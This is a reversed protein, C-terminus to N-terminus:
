EPAVKAIDPVITCPAGGEKVTLRDCVMMDIMGTVTDIRLASHATGLPGLDTTIVDTIQYRGVESTAGVSKGAFIASAVLVASILIATPYNM